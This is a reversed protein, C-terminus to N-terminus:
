RWTSSNRTTYWRGRGSVARWSPRVSPAVLASWVRATCSRRSRIPLSSWSPSRIGDGGIAYHRNLMEPRVVRPASACRGETSVMLHQGVAGPLITSTLVRRTVGSLLHHCKELHTRGRLSVGPVSYVTPHPLPPPEIRGLWLRPCAPAARRVVGPHDAADHTFSARGDSCRCGTAACGARAAGRM